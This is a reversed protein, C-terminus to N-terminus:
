WKKCFFVYKRVVDGVEYEVEKYIFPKEMDSAIWKKSAWYVLQADKYVCSPKFMRVLEEPQLSARAFFYDVSYVAQWLFTRWDQSYITVSELGLQKIIHELFIRKKANVEILIVHLHPFLIKLPIGPFGAGTGVDVITNIESFDIHQSIALSDHFHNEVIKQPELITTLNFKTNWERLMHLYKQYLFIQELTLSFDDHMKKFSSEYTGDLQQKNM